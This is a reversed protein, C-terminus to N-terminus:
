RMEDDEIEDEEDEFRKEDRRARKKQGIDKESWM